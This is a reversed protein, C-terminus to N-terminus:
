SCILFKILSGKFIASKYINIRNVNILLNLIQTGIYLLNLDARTVAYKNTRFYFVAFVIVYGQLLDHMERHYSFTFLYFPTQNSNKTRM